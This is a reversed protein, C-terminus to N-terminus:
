FVIKRKGWSCSPVAVTAKRQPVNNPGGHLMPKPRRVALPLDEIVVDLESDEAAGNRVLDGDATVAFGNPLAGAGRSKVHNIVVEVPIDSEDNYTLDEENNAFPEDDEIEPLTSVVLGTLELHLAPNTNPLHLAVLAAPSTLSALQAFSSRNRCWSLHM